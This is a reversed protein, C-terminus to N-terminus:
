KCDGHTAATTECCAQQRTTSDTGVCILVKTKRTSERTTYQTICGYLLMLQSQDAGSKADILTEIGPAGELSPATDPHNV